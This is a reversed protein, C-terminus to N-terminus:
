NLFRFVTKVQLGARETWDALLAERQGEAGLLSPQGLVAATARVSAQREGIGHGFLLTVTLM